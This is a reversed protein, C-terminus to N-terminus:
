SCCTPAARQQPALAEPRPPKERQPACAGPVCAQAPAARPSLPKCPTPEPSCAWCNHGVPKAAGHYQSRGLGPISQCAARFWQVVLFTGIKGSKLFSHFFLCLLTQWKLRKWTPPVLDVWVTSGADGSMELVAEDEGVSVRDGDFVLEEGQGEWQRHRHSQSRWPGWVRPTMYCRDEQSRNDWKACCGGLEGTNDWPCKPQEWREAETLLAATLM